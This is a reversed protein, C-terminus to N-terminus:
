GPNSDLSSSTLSPTRVVPCECRITGLSPVRRIHARQPVSPFLVPVVVRVSLWLQRLLESIGQVPSLARIPVLSVKTQVGILPPGIEKEDNGWQTFALCYQNVPPGQDHVSLVLSFSAKEYVHRRDQSSPCRAKEPRLFRGFDTLSETLKSFRTVAAFIGTSTNNSDSAICSHMTM